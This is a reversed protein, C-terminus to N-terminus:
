RIMIEVRRNKPERVDDATPILPDNEGFSNLSIKEPHIGAFTLFQEVAKAREISLRINYDASGATDTHGIVSIEYPERANATKVIEPVLSQSEKILVTSDTEFYLIYSVPKLPEAALVLQYDRTLKNEEIKRVQSPGSSTDSVTAYAYAGDITRSQGPTKVVASGISGDADPLLIVTTSSCATFFLGSLLIAFYKLMTSGMM